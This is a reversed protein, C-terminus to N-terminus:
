SCYTVIPKGLTGWQEVRSEMTSLPISLAGLRHQAVLSVGACVCAALALHVVALRRSPSGM